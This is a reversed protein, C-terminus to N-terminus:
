LSNMRYLQGLPCYLSRANSTVPLWVFEILSRNEVGDSLSLFTLGCDSTRKRPCINRSEANVLPAEIGEPM